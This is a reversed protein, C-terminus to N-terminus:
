SSGIRTATPVRAARNRYATFVRPAHSIRNGQTGLPWANNGHFTEAGPRTFNLVSNRRRTIAQERVPPPADDDKPGGRFPERLFNVRDAIVETAWHTVGDKEYKRTQLRGTIYVLNKLLPLTKEHVRWATVRHWDTEEKWEQSGAPQWRRTTAVSLNTVATGNPTFRTEADQGVHGMLVVNNVSPM